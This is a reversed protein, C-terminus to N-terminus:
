ILWSSKMSFSYKEEKFFVAQRLASALHVSGKGETLTGQMLEHM